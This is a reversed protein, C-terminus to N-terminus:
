ANGWAKMQDDMTPIDEPLRCKICLGDNPKPLANQKTGCHPCVYNTAWQFDEPHARPTNSM